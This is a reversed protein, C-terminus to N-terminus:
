GNFDIAWIDWWSSLGYGFMIKGENRTILFCYKMRIFPWIHNLVHTYCPVNQTHVWAILSSTAICRRRENAPRMSLVIGPTSKGLDVNVTEFRITFNMFTMVWFSALIEFHFTMHLMYSHGKISFITINQKITLNYTIHRNRLVYPIFVM